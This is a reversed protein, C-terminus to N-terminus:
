KAINNLFSQNLFETIPEQIRWTFHFQREYRCLSVLVSSLITVYILDRITFKVKM